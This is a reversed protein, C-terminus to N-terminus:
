PTARATRAWWARRRHPAVHTPARRCLQALCQSAHRATHVQVLEEFLERQPPPEAAMLCTDADVEARWKLCGVLFACVSEAWDERNAYGRVFCMLLDRHLGDFKEAGLWGRLRRCVQHRAPLTSPATSTAISLPSRVQLEESTLPVWEPAPKWDGPPQEPLLSAVTPLPGASAAAGAASAAPAARAAAAPVAASQKAHAAGNAGQAILHRQIRCVAKYLVVLVCIQVCLVIEILEGSTAVLFGM